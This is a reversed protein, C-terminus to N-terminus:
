QFFYLCTLEHIMEGFIQPLFHSFLRRNFGAGVKQTLKFMACTVLTILKQPSQLQTCCYPLCLLRSSNIKGHDIWFSLFYPYARLSNKKWPVYYKTELIMGWFVVNNWQHSKTQWPTWWTEKMEQPTIEGMYQPGLPGEHKMTGEPSRDVRFDKKGPNDYGTKEFWLGSVM